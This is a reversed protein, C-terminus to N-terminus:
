GISFKTNSMLDTSIRDVMALLKEDQLKRATLQLSIPLGHVDVPDYDKHVIEDIPSLPVHNILKTDIDKDAKFTTPFSISPFDLLSFINTYSVTRMQGNKPAVFPTTPSLIADIEAQVMRSLYEAQLFTREQQLQWLDYVGMESAKEYDALEPRWAEGTTELIKRVSKGGDALFFKKCMMAAEAHGKPSWNVVHYGKCKLKQVVSELARTVPPTPTIAGNDWLVAVKLRAPLAIERFPLELAKPDRLWPESGIVTKLWLKLDAVSRAIPGNVAGVAEQGALATRNDHHPSRGHSPRISYVGVCAAPIRLSGGIDTGVGLCSGRMAILASEGGSSGGSTLNRNLPNVTRGYCNNVSEAFMMATPVNTKVYLIAGASKLITVITSDSNVPDLAWATLGVSTPYGAVNFCDKLSIPLGHLPGITKGTTLFHRDVEKARQIADDFM